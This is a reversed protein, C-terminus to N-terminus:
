DFSTIMADAFFSGKGKWKTSIVSWTGCDGDGAITDFRTIEPEAEIVGKSAATLARKFTEYDDLALFAM